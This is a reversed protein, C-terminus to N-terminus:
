KFPFPTVRRALEPNQQDVVNKGYQAYSSALEYRDKALQWDPALRLATGYNDAAKHWSYRRIMELDGRVIWHSPRQPENLIAEEIISYAKGMEGEEALFVADRDLKDPSRGDDTVHGAFFVFLGVSGGAVAGVVVVLLIVVIIWRPM